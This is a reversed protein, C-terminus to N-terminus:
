AAAAVVLRNEVAIARAAAAIVALARARPDNRRAVLYVTRKAADNELPRLVLGEAWRAALAPVLTVGQGNVALRMLTALSTARVRRDVAASGCLALAQDRLCHGDDLLLLTGSAIDRFSPEAIAALPHGPSHGILFPEDFLPTQRLDDGDPETAILM